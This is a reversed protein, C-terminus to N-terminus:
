CSSHSFSRRASGRKAVLTGANWTGKAKVVTQRATLAGFFTSRGIPIDNDDKFNVDLLGTTDVTFGDPLEKALVITPSSASIVLGQIAHDNPAVPASEEDIRTATFTTNDLNLFARIKVGEGALFSGDRPSRSDTVVIRYFPKKKTGHRALRM